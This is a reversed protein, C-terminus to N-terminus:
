GKFERAVKRTKSAATGDVNEEATARKVTARRTSAGCTAKGDNDPFVRGQSPSNFCTGGQTFLPQTNTPRGPGPDKLVQHLPKGIDFAGFANECST